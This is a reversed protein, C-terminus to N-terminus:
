PNPRRHTAVKPSVTQAQSPTCPYQTSRCMKLLVPVSSQRQFFRPALCLSFIFMFPILVCFL